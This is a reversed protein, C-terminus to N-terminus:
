RLTQYTPYPPRVLKKPPNKELEALVHEIAKELQPDRGQRVLAPDHEVEIDPAVGTNEAIWKSEDPDWVASSPASVVGGDMLQPAGARGVLGGWTRKGILKGAGAKRFYWPMADGGSGAFENILMVKPGFIAGQPEIEDEGDRTAVGSMLKRTMFEVLDTALQGGGNFREDVIVAQKGVQAFFYRTFNTQGGGATDPLYVYAVRGGTAQDVKRRNDEIWALNRLRGENAVPVVTVERSGTGSPDSGVKLKVQKEATAEFFRYVNDASTLNRGNVELLYEGAVVNVGPQTLPARADPNWNEGNFVRAFRYRGNEIAFDAGLMGTAVRRVEPQEGGGVNLHSVVVNGMMEAFLYNLDARSGIGDVFPAYRKEATKMDLGHHNADYFFDREIRWAERYMQKWEALPSIRVELATNLQGGTPPVAVPPTPPAGGGAPPAPPMNRIFWNDGQRMLMKEGNRSVKFFQVGSAAVDTRRSRLDHRHVVLGAPQRPVPLPAEIALLTGARGADLEVYRRPPLPMALIRQSINDFDIKVEVPKATSPAGPKQTGEAPKQADTAPKQTDETPKQTDAAPKQGDAAAPDAVKEEDSEPAFPSPQDKALVVLYISNTVTRTGSGVDPQLSPGSDTSAAFYLYKGDKDFVPDRADSLGDTLQRAKADALSYVHIAGMYNALRKSYALWKSDPSWVPAWDGRGAAWYRDKDVQTFKRTAVELYWMRSRADTFALYKSDPSWQPSRYFSPEPMKIKTVEGTGAQPALHLEYESAEDSFYAITRGDPSWVPSREMVSATNTIVRGDGKEAPVTVIEGRAEFVARAANPSLDPNILRTRVSVMRERVEALDGAMTVAVPTTRGSRVDHLLLRGFQEIVIGDPGAGASKFDLGANEVEEKVRRSRTDYSYLTVPGNRDSLFYVKDGVWLPNFDNSNDRPVKEIKSSSLDALWIPTTDGGRYGKWVTFARRMPVYALRAADPSYAAEWGWPLPLKDPFSGNTDTTFLQPFGAYSGRPSSFLIRKGDPTWGLVADAGPHWTLRKPIGGAAPVLYVDVNGDYEGTFAITSGDPSYVPNSEAGVGTTLRRADGGERPVTWLDGAFVFAIHTRSLAPKQLLLPPNSQANLSVVSVALILLLTRM